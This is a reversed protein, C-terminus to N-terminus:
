ELAAAQRTVTHAGSIVWDNSGLVVPQERLFPALWPSLLTSPERRPFRTRLRWPKGVAGRAGRAPQLRTSRLPYPPRLITRWSTNVYLDATLEPGLKALVQERTLAAIPNTSLTEVMQYAIMLSDKRPGPARRIICLRFELPLRDRHSRIYANVGRAYAAFQERDEPTAALLGKEATARIGLIRQQRDHQLAVDGVIESLEGAAARRLLDMQFLRDQATIYGQAFFLDDLTAAEITPVGHSDRSVSVPASIGSVPIAGDLDPLPSRGITYLWAIGAATVILLALSFAAWFVGLSSVAPSTRLSPASVQPCSFFGITPPLVRFPLTM